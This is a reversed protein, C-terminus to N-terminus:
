EFSRVHVDHEPSVNWVEADCREVVHSARLVQPAPWFTVDCPSKWVSRVHSDHAPSVYWVEVDCRELVHTARVVHPGPVYTVLLPLKVDSRM